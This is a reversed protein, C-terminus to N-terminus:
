HAFPQLSPHTPHRHLRQDPHSGWVAMSARGNQGMSGHHEAILPGEGKKTAAM